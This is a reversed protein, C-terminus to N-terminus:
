PRLHVCRPCRALIQHLLVLGGFIAHVDDPEVGHRRAASACANLVLGDSRMAQLHIDRVGTVAEELLYVHVSVGAELVRRIVRLGRNWNRHRPSCSILVGLQSPIVAMAKMM